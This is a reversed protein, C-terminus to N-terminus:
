KPRRHALTFSDFPDGFNTGSSLGGKSVGRKPPTKLKAKREAPNDNLIIMRQDNRYVITYYEPYGAM